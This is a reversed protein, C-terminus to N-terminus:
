DVKDLRKKVFDLGIELLASVSSYIKQKSEAQLIEKDFMRRKHEQELVFSDNDQKRKLEQLAKDDDMKQTTSKAVATKVEAEAEVEKMKAQASM